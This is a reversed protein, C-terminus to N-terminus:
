RVGNGVHSTVDEAFNAVAAPSITRKFASPCSVNLTAGKRREWMEPRLQCWRISRARSPPGTRLSGLTDGRGLGFDIVDAEAEVTEVLRVAGRHDAAKGFCRPHRDQLRLPRPRPVMM